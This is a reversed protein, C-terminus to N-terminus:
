AVIGEVLTRTNDWQTKLPALVTTQANGSQAAALWVAGLLLTGFCWRRIM